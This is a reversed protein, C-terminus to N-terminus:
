PVWNVALLPLGLDRIQVLLGHLMAQDLVQLTMTTLPTGDDGYEKVMIWARSGHRGNATWTVWWRYRTAPRNISRSSHMHMQEHNKGDM